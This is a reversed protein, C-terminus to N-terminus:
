NIWENGERLLVFKEKNLIFILNGNEDIFYKTSEPNKDLVTKFSDWHKVNWLEYKNYALEDDDSYTDSAYMLKTLMWTLYDTKPRGFFSSVLENKNNVKYATFKYFLKDVSNLTEKVENNTGTYDSYSLNNIVTPFVDNYSLHFGASSHSLRCLVSIWIVNTPQTIIKITIDEKDAVEIVRSMETVLHITVKKEIIPKLFKELVENYYIEVLKDREIRNMILGKM